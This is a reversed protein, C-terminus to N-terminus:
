AVLSTPGFNMDYRVISAVFGSEPLTNIFSSVIYVRCTHTLKLNKVVGM